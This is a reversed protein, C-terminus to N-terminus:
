ANLMYVHLTIDCMCAIHIVKFHNVLVNAKMRRKIAKRPGHANWYLTMAYILHSIPTLRCDINNRSNITIKNKKQQVQLSHMLVDFLTSISNGLIAHRAIQICPSCADRYTQIAM